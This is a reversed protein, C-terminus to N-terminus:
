PIEQIQAAKGEEYYSPEQFMEAEREKKECHMDVNNKEPFKLFMEQM